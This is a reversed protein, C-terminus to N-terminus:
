EFVVATKRPVTEDSGCIVCLRLDVVPPPRHLDRGISCLLSHADKEVISVVNALLVQFGCLYYRINKLLLGGVKEYEYGQLISAILDEHESYACHQFASHAFLQELVKAPTVFGIMAHVVQSLLDKM